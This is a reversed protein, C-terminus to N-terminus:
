LNVLELPIFCIQTLATTWVEKGVNCKPLPDQKCSWSDIPQMEMANHIANHIAVSVSTFRHLIVSCLCVATVTSPRTQTERRRLLYSDARWVNFGQSVLQWSQLSVQCM